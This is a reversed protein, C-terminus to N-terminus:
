PVRYEATEIGRIVRVPYGILRPARAQAPASAAAATKVFGLQAVTIARRGLPAQDSIQRLSLSVAGVSQALAMVQAQEPTVEITVARAVAPKDAEDNDSQDVGLVRVNEGLVQTVTTPHEQGVTRTLLIDVRDGPLVFGAVGAIENSRLSVARMGEGLSASLVLRGGPGSVRTALLPENPAMSRLALRKDVGAGTLEAISRFAGTPVAEAPYNVVKLQAAEIAKGRDIAQAAVVVPAMAVTQRVADNRGNALYSRVLLVAVLGLLIAVALSAITRIPM